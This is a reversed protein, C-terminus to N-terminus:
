GSSRHPCVGEKTQTHHPGEAREAIGESPRQRRVTTAVGEPSRPDLPHCEM